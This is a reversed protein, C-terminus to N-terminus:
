ISFFLFFFHMSLYYGLNFLLPLSTPFVLVLISFVVLTSVSTSSNSFSYCTPFYNESFSSSFILLKIVRIYYFINIVSFVIFFWLILVTIIDIFSVIIFYKIFFGSFPPIGAISFIVISFCFTLFYNERILGEIEDLFIIINNNKKGMCMVLVFILISSILYVTYYIFAFQFSCLTNISISLMIFGYHSISSFILFRKVRKQYSLGLSGIAWSLVTFFLFIFQYFSLYHTSVFRLLCILLSFKSATIIFISLSIEVGEVIDPMWMHFPAVGLKFLLSFFVFTFGVYVISSEQFHFNVLDHLFFYNTTGIFGYVLSSGFLFFGSSFAGIILYKLSAEISFSSNKNSASLIYITLSQLELCLYVSILDTSSVLIFISFISILYVYFFEFYNFFHHRNNISYSALCILGLFLIFLQSYFSVSDCAISGFFQITCFSPSNFVTIIVFSSIYVSYIFSVKNFVFTKSDYVWKQTSILSYFLLVFCLSMGFFIFPFLSILESFLIQYM